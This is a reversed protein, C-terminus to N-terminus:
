KGCRGLSCLVTCCVFTPWVWRDWCYLNVTHHTYPNGWVGEVASIPSFFSWARQIEVMQEWQLYAAALPTKCGSIRIEMNFTCVHSHHTHPAPHPNPKLLFLQWGHVNLWSDLTNQWRLHQRVINCLGESTNNLENGKKMRQVLYLM